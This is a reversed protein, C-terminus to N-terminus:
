DIVKLETVNAVRFSRWEGKDTCFVSLTKYSVDRNERLPKAEQVPMADKKLTCPMTRVEGNVKTFTVECVHDWLLHQMEKFRSQLELDDKPDGIYLIQYDMNTVKLMKRAEIQVGM